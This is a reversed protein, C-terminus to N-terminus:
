EDLKKTWQNDPFNKRLMDRYGAAQEPLGIATYCQTLRYLAEPVMVTDDAGSVISQFHTIASTWNERRMDNRAAYM